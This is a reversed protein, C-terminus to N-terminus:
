REWPRKGAPPKFDAPKSAPVTKVEPESAPAPSPRPTSDGIQKFDKVENDPDRGDEQKIAVRVQLTAGILEETSGIRLKDISYALKALERMGIEEAKPNPNKININCFLKRGAHNEGLVTLTLKIFKGTGAKTDRVEAKDIEVPYWGAPIPEYDTSPEYQTADFGEDGLIDRLDDSM